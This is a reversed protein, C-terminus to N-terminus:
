KKLTSRRHRLAFGIMGFAMLALVPPEPINNTYGGLTPLDSYPMATVIYGGNGDPDFIFPDLTPNELMAFDAPTILGGADGIGLGFLTAYGVGDGANLGITATGPSDEFGVDGDATGGTGQLDGYNFLIRGVPWNFPNGAGFLVAQFANTESRGYLPVDSWTGVFIGPITNIFSLTGGYRNDHDDFLPAITPVITDGFQDPGSRPFAYNDWSDRGATFTLSGNSNFYIQTHNTGFFPFPMGMNIPGFHDDDDLTFVAGPAGFINGATPNFWLAQASLPLLLSIALMTALVKRGLMIEEERNKNHRAAAPRAKASNIGFVEASRFFGLALDIGNPILAV